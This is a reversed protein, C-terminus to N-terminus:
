PRQARLLSLQRKKSTSTELLPDLDAPEGAAGLLELLAGALAAVFLLRDRRDCNRVHTASLGFGFRIDKTDRFSEEITFRRGYLKTVETANLDARSTAICWPEKMKAAHVVVVGAVPFRDKTVCANRLMRARGTQSLWQGAPKAEDECEV